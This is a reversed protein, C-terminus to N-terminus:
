LGLGKHSPYNEFTLNVIVDEGGAPWYEVTGGAQAFLASGSNRLYRHQFRVDVVGANILLAACSVCPEHTCTLVAGQLSVGYRAAMAVVNAEAHVSLWCPETSDKHSCHAVGMPAGNYGTALIRGQRSAVAGVQLRSCTGRGSVAEAVAFLMDDRSERM